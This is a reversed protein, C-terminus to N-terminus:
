KKRKFLRSFFGEKKEIYVPAVANIMKKIEKTIQQALERTPTLILAQIEPSNVDLKELIPLVFALTKGTGTQAQAIVDKGELVTPITKEQIPTPTTLGLSKLTHNIEKRIGLQVFDPLIIM